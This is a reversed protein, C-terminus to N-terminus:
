PPPPKPDLQRAKAFDMAARAQQGLSRLVIGRNYFAISGNPDPRIAEDFDSIAREHQGKSQFIAGRNRYAGIRTHLSM